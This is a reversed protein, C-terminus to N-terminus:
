RRSRRRALLMSLALLAGAGAGAQTCGGQESNAFSSNKKPIKVGAHLEDASMGYIARTTRGAADRVEVELSPQFGLSKVEFTQAAGWSTWDAGAVRYRYSLESDASVTDHAVTSIVQTESEVLKVRPGVYDVTFIVKAPELDATGAQGRIRSRVEINHRGELRLVPAALELRTSTTWTSWFSGDVRASYEYGPFNLSQLGLGRMEIVAKPQSAASTLDLPAAPVFSEVLSAATDARAMQPAGAQLTAFLALHQYGGGVAGPVSGRAGLVNLSFGMISPLSIPPIANGLQSGAVGVLTPILAEIEADKAIKMENNLAKVKTIAMNLDGIVPTITGMAPDFDLDLPFSIDVRTTFLRVYREEVFAYFDLDTDKLNLTLLSDKDTPNVKGRGIKVEPAVTPRLALLMPVDQNHTVVNLGPLVSSVLGSSLQSVTETTVNLCLLGAQWASFMAKDIFNDSVALGAMYDGLNSGPGPMGVEADFDVQAPQDRPTWTGTRVCAAPSPARTGGMMGVQIGGNQVRSSPTNTTSKGGAVAYIDLAANPDGGFSALTDGVRARGEIGLQVTPCTRKNYDYYCVGLGSKCTSAGPCAHTGSECQVCRAGDITDRIRDNVTGQLSQFILQKVLDNNLIDCTFNLANCTSSISDIGLEATDIKKSIDDIGTVNYSLIDGRTGDLTLEINATIPIFEPPNLASDYEAKCFMGCVSGLITSLGVTLPIEGTRVKLQLEFKVLIDGDPTLQSPTFKSGTVTASASCKDLPYDSRNWSADDFATCKADGDLDCATVLANFGSVIAPSQQTCPIAFNLGGTSQGVQQIIAAVQSEAFRLGKESIKVSMGEIQREAAPFGGLIPTICGGCGLNGNSGGSCGVIILLVWPILHGPRRPFM